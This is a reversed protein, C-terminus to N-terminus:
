FAFDLVQLFREIVPGSAERVNVTSTVVTMPLTRSGLTDMVGYGGPVVLHFTMDADIRYPIDEGRVISRWVSESFVPDDLRLPFVLTVVTDRGAGVAFSPIASTVDRATLATDKVRLHGLAGDFRAQEANPNSAKIDCRVNVGYKGMVSPDRSILDAGIELWNDPYVLGKVDLKRFSFDVGLILLRQRVMDFLDCAVPVSGLALAGALVLGTRLRERTM